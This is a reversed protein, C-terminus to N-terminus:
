LKEALEAYTPWDGNAELLRRWTVKGDTVIFTAPSPQEAGELLTGWARLGDLAPDSVLTIAPLKTQLAAM